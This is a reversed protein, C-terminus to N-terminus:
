TTTITSPNKKIITRCHDYFKKTIILGSTQMKGNSVKSNKKNLKINNVRLQSIKKEKLQLLNDKMIIIIIIVPM